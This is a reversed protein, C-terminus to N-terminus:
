AGLIKPPINSSQRSTKLALNTYEAWTTLVPNPDYDGGSEDYVDIVIGEDEFKVHLNIVKKEKHFTLDIYPEDESIIATNLKNGQSLIAVAKPNEQYEVWDGAVGEITRDYITADNLEVWAQKEANWFLTSGEMIVYQTM